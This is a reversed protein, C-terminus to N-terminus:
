AFGRLGNVSLSGVNSGLRYPALSCRAEGRHSCASIPPPSSEIPLPAPHGLMKTLSTMQPIGPVAERHDLFTPPGDPDVVRSRHTSVRCPPSMQKAEAPMPEPAPDYKCTM